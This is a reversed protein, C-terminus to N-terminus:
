PHSLAVEECYMEARVRRQTDAGAEAPVSDVKFIGLGSLNLRLLVSGLNPSLLELTGTREPIPQGQIVFEEHWEYFLAADAEPITIVLNGVELKGPEKQYDREEGIEFPTIEQRVVLAEVRSVSKCAAELGGISVRFNSVLALKSKGALPAVVKGSPTENRTYEPVIPITIAAVDKSGADLTPFAVESILAEAFTRRAREVYNFDATVIAGDRRAFNPSWTARIWQALQPSLNSGVQFTLDEFELNGLHKHVWRSPGVAEEVITGKAAGGDVSRLFGASAEGLELLFHGTSYGREAIPAALAAQPKQLAALAATVGGATKLFGRRDRAM